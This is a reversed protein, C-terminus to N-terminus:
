FKINKFHANDGAIIGHNITISKSRNGSKEGKEKRTKKFEGQNGSRYQRIRETVIAAIEDEYLKKGNLYHLPSLDGPLITHDTYNVIVLRQRDDKTSEMSVRKELLTWESSLYSESIMLVKMLSRNKYVDYLKQYIKQSLLEQQRGPAFFVRWGDATLYDVLKVAKEEMESKYSIAVDFEYEM